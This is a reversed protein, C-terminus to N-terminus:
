QPNLRTTAVDLSESYLPPHQFHFVSRPDIVGFRMFRIMWRSQEQALTSHEHLDLLAMAVGPPRVSGRTVVLREVAGSDRFYCCDLYTRPGPRGFKRAASFCLKEVSYTM